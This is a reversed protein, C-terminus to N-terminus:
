RYPPTTGMVAHRRGTQPIGEPLADLSSALREQRLPGPPSGQAAKEEFAFGSGGAEATMHQAVPYDTSDALGNAPDPSRRPSGKSAGSPPTTRRTAPSPSRGATPACRCSADEQELLDAVKDTSRVTGIVTEGRHLLQHTTLAHGVAAPSAPSSDPVRPPWTHDKSTPANGAPAVADVAALANLTRPYAPCRGPANTSGTHRLVEDFVFDDFYETLEPDTVALTSARGPFLREHAAAANPTRATM